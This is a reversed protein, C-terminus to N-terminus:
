SGGRAIFLAMQSEGHARLTMANAFVAHVRKPLWHWDQLRVPSRRGNQIRYVVWDGTSSRYAREPTLWIGQHHLRRTPARIVRYGTPTEGNMVALALAQVPSPAVSTIKKSPSAPVPPKDFTIEINRVSLADPVLTILHTKGSQTTVFVSFAQESLPLIYADGTRADTEIVCDSSEGRVVRIPADVVALRNYHGKAVSFQLPTTAALAPCVTLCLLGCVLAQWLKRHRM